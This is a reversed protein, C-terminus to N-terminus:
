PLFTFLARLSPWARPAIRSPRVELLDDPASPALPKAVPIEWAALTKRDVKGNTLVPLEDLFVVTPPVFALPLRERVFSRLAQPSRDCGDKLVVFAILQHQGQDNRRGIVEAHRVHPHRALTATVEGPEVRTGRLTVQDDVRGAIDILGDERYRGLDGTFYV